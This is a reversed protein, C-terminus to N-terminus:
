KFNELAQEEQMALKREDRDDILLLEPFFHKKFTAFDIESDESRFVKDRLLYAKIDERDYRFRTVFLHNLIDSMAIVKKGAFNFSAFASDPDRYMKKVDRRMQTKVQELHHNKCFNNKFISIQCRTGPYRCKQSAQRLHRPPAAEAAHGDKGKAADRELELLPTQARRELNFLTHQSSLKRNYKGLASLCDTVPKQSPQNGLQKNPPAKVLDVRTLPKASQRSDQVSGARERLM